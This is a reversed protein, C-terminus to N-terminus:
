HYIQIFCFVARPACKAWHFLFIPILFTTALQLTIYALTNRYTLEQPPWAPGTNDAAIINNNEIKHPCSISFSFVFRRRPNM